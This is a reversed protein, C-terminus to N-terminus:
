DRLSARSSRWRFDFVAEGVVVDADRNQIIRGLFEDDLGFSARAAVSQAAADQQAFSQHALHRARALRRDNAFHVGARRSRHQGTGNGRNRQRHDVRLLQQAHEVHFRRARRIERAPFGAAAFARPDQKGARQVVGERELLRLLLGDGVAERADLRVAEEHLRERRFPLTGRARVPRKREHEHVQVAELEHVIEVAVQFAVHHQLADAVDELLIAAARVHHGAVAAVFEHDQHRFGGDLLRPLEGALQAAPDGGIRQQAVLVDGGAKADGAEGDVARRRLFQNLHRVGRHVERLM